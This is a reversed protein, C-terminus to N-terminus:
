ARGGALEGDTELEEALGEAFGGQELGGVGVFLGGGPVALAGADLASFDM